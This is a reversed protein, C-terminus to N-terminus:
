WNFEVDADGRSRYEASDEHVLLRAVGKGTRVVVANMGGDMTGTWRSDTPNRIGTFPTSRARVEAKGYDSSVEVRGKSGLGLQCHVNGESSYVLVPSTIAADTRVIVDGGPRNEFGNQVDIAGTVGRVEVTGGGNRLVIDTCAPVRIVLRNTFTEDGGHEGAIPANCRVRLVPRGQELVSDVRLWDPLVKLRRTKESKAKLYVEPTKWRKDAFVLVSGNTNVIDIATTVGATSEDYGAIPTNLGLVARKCGSMTLPWAALLALAILRVVLSSRISAHTM